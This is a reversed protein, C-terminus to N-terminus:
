RCAQIGALGCLAEAGYAIIAFRLTRGIFVVVAFIPLSVRAAGCVVAIVMLPPFGVSSSLFLVSVPYVPRGAFRELWVEATALTKQSKKRNRLWSSEIGRLGAYYWAVKGVTQGFGAAAGILLPVLGTDNAAIAAVYIELNVLPVVASVAGVVLTLASEVFPDM